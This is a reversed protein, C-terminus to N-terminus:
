GRHTARSCASLTPRWRPAPRWVASPRSRLAELQYSSLELVVLDEPEIRELEDLLSGGLNGGLHVPRGAARLLAATMHCTSSKGQTGTVCLLRAEVSELFLEIESTTRAGHERARQVLPHDMRVAPNVVM